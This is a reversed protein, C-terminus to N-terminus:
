GVRSLVSWGVVDFALAFFLVTLYRYLSVSYDIFLFLSLLVFLIRAIDRAFTLRSSSCDALPRSDEWKM